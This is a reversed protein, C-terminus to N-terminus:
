DELIRGYRASVANEGRRYPYHIAGGLIASIDGNKMDANYMM